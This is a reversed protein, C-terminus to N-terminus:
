TCRRTRGGWVLLGVLAVGWLFVIKLVFVERKQFAELDPLGAFVINEAANFSLHLVIALLVSGGTHEFLVTLLGAVATIQALYLAISGLSLEMFSPIAAGPFWFMPGHWFTWAVGLLLTSALPGMRERLRPLAFGRWGLEEGMPGFPLAVLLALPAAALMKAPEFTIATGGLSSLLVALGLLAVPLLGAFLYWGWGVRWMLLTALLQKVGPRGGIISSMILAAITPGYAGPLFVVLWWELHGDLVVRWLYVFPGFFVWSIAYALLFYSLLPCRAAADAIWQCLRRRQPTSM